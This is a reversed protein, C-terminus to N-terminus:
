KWELILLSQLLGLPKQHEGKVTQYILYRSVFEIIDKKMDNWWYCERLDRYIKNSGHHIIYAIQHVEM